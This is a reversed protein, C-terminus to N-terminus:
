AKKVDCLFAKYEPIMTNADGVHPTLVNASDGKSLGIHGWHWPMGVQHVKSGNVHFPKLRKTVVAVAEISGRATEVMVKSGNEIEKEYALEESIEVFMDPMLEVLWPSNRTMQGGQWHECVRYTTAVIPYKSRDGQEDPRWIKFAPDNQQGSMPNDVPSEWPEYHEPLPGDAMGGERPGINATFLQGHGDSKMIFPYRTGEEAMPAWGGDPVDGEWKRTLSNWKIVPHKADWPNGNLDVSARNYIIRRNVPWCWGWNSHLGIGSTDEPDRRAAMNGAETYSACYLWNGSTTTGDNKLKGFSPVLKGTTLDYGNIEKAVQHPDAHHGYDWTLGTISEKSPGDQQEYLGRLEIMLQSMIDLDARAEGPGDACKWRWQSWRGSNTVSGEKEYSNLAPLLFVETKIDTPEVNPRNWFDATETHWIDAVIMWDLKGLADCEANANPGGVAPNQGWVMLGKIVGEGMAEFLSIHSYNKGSLAKPLLDFGFDNGAHANGGYWAKLLSVIYKSTNGWWNASKPDSTRPTGRELYKDLSTDL